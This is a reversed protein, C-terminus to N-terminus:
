VGQDEFMSEELKGLTGGTEGAVKLDLQLGM